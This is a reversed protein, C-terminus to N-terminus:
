IVLSNVGEVRVEKASIEKVDPVGNGDADKADDTQSASIVQKAEGQFLAYLSLYLLSDLFSAFEDGFYLVESVSAAKLLAFRRLSVTIM